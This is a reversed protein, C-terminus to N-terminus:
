NSPNYKEVFSLAAELMQQRTEARSLWHDEKELVVMEYPKGADKLADAMATSEAFPVVTDDKGHILLIPADALNAHRRPSVENFTDPDGLEEELNAKLFRSGGRRYLESDYHM